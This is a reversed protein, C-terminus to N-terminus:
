WIRGPLAREGRPEADRGRGGHRLARGRLVGDGRLRAGADRREGADYGAADIAKLVFDLAERTSGLAPAFGGEDGVATSLGAQALGKKLAHFIEAGWRVAEAVSDAGVPMVMFEQIDIPNDAHQGGNVINMMPVPLVRAAVGGVYRYLPMGASEAAAKAVALSVGLIANAGLRSKNETGDLEVMAM